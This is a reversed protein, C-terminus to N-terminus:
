DRELSYHYSVQAGVRYHYVGYEILRGATDTLRSSIFLVPENLGVNLETSVHLDAEQAEVTDIGEALTRDLVEALYAPTGQRIPKRQVLRPALDNFERPFWSTALNIPVGSREIRRSRCVALSGTAVEMPDAIAKPVETLGCILYESKENPLRIGQGLGTSRLFMDKPSDVRKHERVVLGIGPRSEILQDDKLIRITKDITAKAVGEQEVLHRTSPILDGPQYVGAVIQDRIEKAIRKYPAIEEM